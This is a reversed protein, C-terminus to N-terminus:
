GSSPIFSRCSRASWTEATELTSAAGLSSPRLMTITNAGSRLALAARLGAGPRGAVPTSGESSWAEASGRGSSAVVEAQRKYVDLHTYSVTCHMLTSKGSGSPGMVATFQGHGFTVNVGDLAQVATQGSGYTKRLDIAQAAPPVERGETAIGPTLTMNTM